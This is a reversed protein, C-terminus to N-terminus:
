FTVKKGESQDPEQTKKREKGAGSGATAPRSGGAGGDGAGGGSKPREGGAGGSKPREEGDSGVVMEVEAGGTGAIQMSIVPPGEKKEVEGESETNEPTPLLELGEQLRMQNAFDHDVRRQFRKRQRAMRERRIDEESKYKRVAFGALVTSMPVPRLQYPKSRRAQEESIWFNSKVTNTKIMIQWKPPTVRLPDLVEVIIRDPFTYDPDLEEEKFSRHKIVVRWNEAVAEGNVGQIFRVGDLCNREIAEDPRWCIHKEDLHLKMKKLEITIPHKDGHTLRAKAHATTWKLHLEELRERELNMRQISRDLEQMLIKEFDFEFTCEYVRSITSVADPKVMVYRLCEDSNCATVQRMRIKQEVFLKPKGDTKRYEIEDAGREPVFEFFHKYKGDPAPTQDPSMRELRLEEVKHKLEVAFKFLKQIKLWGKIEAHEGFAQPNERAAKQKAEREKKRREEVRDFMAQVDADSSGSAPQAAGAAGGGSFLGELTATRQLRLKGVKEQEASSSGAAGPPPADEYRESEYIEAVNKRMNATEKRELREQKRQAIKLRIDAGPKAGGYELEFELLDIEDPDPTRPTPFREITKGLREAREEAERAKKLEKDNIVQLNSHDVQDEEESETDPISSKPTWPRFDVFDREEEDTDEDSAEEEEAEEEGGDLRAQFAAEDFEEGREEAERRRKSMM